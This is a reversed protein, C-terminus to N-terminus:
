KTSEKSRVSTPQCPENLGGRPISPSGMTQRAALSSRCNSRANYLSSHLASHCGGMPWLAPRTPTPADFHTGPLAPGAAASGLRWPGHGTAPGVLRWRPGTAPRPVTPSPQVAVPGLGRRGTPGAVLAPGRLSSRAALLRRTECHDIQNDSCGPVGGSASSISRRAGGFRLSSFNFPRARPPSGESRRPRRGHGAAGSRTSSARPKGPPAALAGRSSSPGASTPCISWRWCRDGLLIRVLFTADFM